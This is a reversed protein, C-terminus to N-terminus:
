GGSMLYKELSKITFQQEEVVARVADGISVVGVLRGNEVVPLHRIHKDTMLAMCQDATWDPEVSIVDTTMIEGVPTTRSTKGLLIVKRAYDRESFIGRMEQGSLVVVAGINKEAMLQLADYITDEPRVSHVNTKGALMQRVTTMM